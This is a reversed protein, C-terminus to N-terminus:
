KVFPLPLFFLLFALVGLIMMLAYHYVHGSQWQRIRAAVWAVLRTSGNV